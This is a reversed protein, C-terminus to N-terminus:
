KRDMKLCDSKRPPSCGYSTYGFKGTKTKTEWVYLQEGDNNKWDKLIGWQYVKCFENTKTGKADASYRMM